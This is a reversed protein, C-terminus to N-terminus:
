DRWFPKAAEQRAMKRTFGIDDLLRDDMALLHQRLEYRQQWTVVTAYLRKLPNGIRGLLLPGNLTQIHYNSMVM